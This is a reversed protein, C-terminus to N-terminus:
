ADALTLIQSSYSEIKMPRPFKPSRDQAITVGQPARQGITLHGEVVGSVTLRIHGDIWSKPQTSTKAHWHPNHVTLKKNDYTGTPAEFLDTQDIRGKINNVTYSM